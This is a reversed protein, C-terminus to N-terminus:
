HGTLISALVATPHLSRHRRRPTPPVRGDDPWRHTPHAASARRRVDMERTEVLALNLRSDM